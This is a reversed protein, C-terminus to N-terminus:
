EWAVTEEPAAVAGGNLRVPGDSCGDFGCQCRGPERRVHNIPEDESFERWDPWERTRNTFMKDHYAGILDAGSFGQRTAGDITLILLDAWESIDQPEKEVEELEERIHALVGKLREGPGFTHDSWERQGDLDTWNIQGYTM